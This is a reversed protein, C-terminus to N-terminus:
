RQPALMSLPRTIATFPLGTLMTLFTGLDRVNKAKLYGHDFLQHAAANMGTSSAELARFVPALSMRDDAVSDTFVSRVFSSVTPGAGPVFSLAGRLQGGFFWDTFEDGWGDDDSDGQM